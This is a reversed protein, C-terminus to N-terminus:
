TIGAQQSTRTQANQNKRLNENAKKYATLAYYIIPDSVFNSSRSGKIQDVIGILM